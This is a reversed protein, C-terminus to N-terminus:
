CFHCYKFLSITQDIIANLNQKLIIFSPSVVWNKSISVMMGSSVYSTQTRQYRREYESHAVAPIVPVITRQSEFSQRERETNYSHPIYPRTSQTTPEAIQNYSGPKALGIEPKKDAAYFGLGPEQELIEESEYDENFHQPPQDGRNKSIEGHQRRGSLTGNSNAVQTTDYQAQDLNITGQVGGVVSQERDSRQGMDYTGTEFNYLWEYGGFYFVGNSITENCLSETMSGFGIRVLQEKLQSLREQYEEDSLEIKEFRGTQSNFEYRYGGHHFYGKYVTARYEEASLNRHGIQGLVHRLVNLRDRYENQSLDVREFKAEDANYLWFIGGREFSGSSITANCQQRSMQGYGLSRLTDQVKRYILAYEDETLEANEGVFDSKELTGGQANYYWRYGGRILQGQQLLAENERQSIQRYGYRKLIEKIRLYIKYKEDEDITLKDYQETGANYIYKCGGRVFVGTTMTQNLEQSSMEGFGILRLQRRIERNINEYEQEASVERHGSNEYRGNVANWVYKYGDHSFGGSFITTNYVDDTISTYGLRRLEKRIQELRESYQEDSIIEYIRQHLPKIQTVRETHQDYSSGADYDPRVNVQNDESDIRDRQEYRRTNTNYLYRFGNHTFGGSFVTANYMDDSLAKYGLAALQNRVITLREVYEVDTIDTVYSPHSSEHHQSSSGSSTQSYESTELRESREFHGSGSNYQYKYGDKEFSGLAITANYQSQTLPAFGCRVLDEKLRNVRETYIQEERLHVQDIETDKHQDLVQFETNQDIVVRPRYNPVVESEELHNYISHKSQVAVPAPTQVEITRQEYETDKRRETYVSSQTPHVYTTRNYQRREENTTEQRDYGSPYSPRVPLRTREESTRNNTIVYHQQSPLILPPTRRESEEQTTSSTHHTQQSPLAFERRRSEEFEDRSEYTSGTGYRPTTAQQRRREYESEERTFTHDITQTLQGEDRGHSETERHEFTNYSTLTPRVIIGGNTQSSTSNQEERESDIRIAPTPYITQHREENVRNATELETAVYARPPPPNRVTQERNATQTYVYHTAPVVVVPRTYVTHHQNQSQQQYYGGQHQSQQQNSITQQVQALDEENFVNQQSQQLDEQENRSEYVNSAANNQRFRNATTYVNQEYQAMHQKHLEELKQAVRQEFWHPQNVQTRDLKGSHMEEIIQSTLDKALLDIEERTKGPSNACRVNCDFTATRRADETTDLQSRLKEAM